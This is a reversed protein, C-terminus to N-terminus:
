WLSLCQAFSVAIAEPPVYEKQIADPRVVIAATKGAACGNGMRAFVFAACDVYWRSAM